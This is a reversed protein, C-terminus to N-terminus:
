PPKPTGVAQRGFPKTTAKIDCQHPRLHSQGAERHQFNSTRHETNMASDFRRSPWTHDRPHNRPGASIVPASCAYFVFLIRLSCSPFVFLIRSCCALAAWTVPQCTAQPDGRHPKPSANPSRTRGKSTRLEINSTPHEFRMVAPVNGSWQRAASQGGIAALLRLLRLLSEFEAKEQVAMTAIARLSRPFGISSRSVSFHPVYLYVPM